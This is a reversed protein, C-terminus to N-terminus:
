RRRGGDKRGSCRRCLTQLEADTFTRPEDIGLVHDAILTTGTEDHHGCRVCTYDDRELVRKRQQRHAASAWVKLNVARQV